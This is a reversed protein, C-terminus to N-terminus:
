EIVSYGAGDQPKVAFVRIPDTYVIVPAACDKSPNNNLHGDLGCPVFLTALSAFNGTTAFDLHEPLGNGTVSVLTWRIPNYQPAVRQLTPALELVM